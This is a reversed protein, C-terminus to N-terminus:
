ITKQSRSAPVSSVTGTVYYVQPKNGTHDLLRQGGKEAIVRSVKSQPNDLDGFLRAKPPCMRVCAPVFEKLAPNDEDLDATGAPAKSVKHYCFNCKSVVGAPQIGVGKSWDNRGDEASYPPRWQQSGSDDHFVKRIDPEVAAKSDTYFRVGYPCAIMCYKCGICKNWDILVFGDATKYTAKTPCVAACSPNECHMCPRPLWSLNQGENFYVVEQWNEGPLRNHEMQCASSCAQCGTCKELDIVMGWKAM